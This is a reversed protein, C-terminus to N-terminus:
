GSLSIVFAVLGGVLLAALTIGAVALAVSRDRGRESTTADASSESEWQVIDAMDPTTTHETQDLHTENAASM